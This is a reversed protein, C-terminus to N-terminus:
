MFVTWALLWSQLDIVKYKYDKTQGDNWADDQSLSLGDGDFLVIVSKKDKDNINQPFLSKLNIFEGHQIRQIVRTPAPPLLSSSSQQQVGPIHLPPQQTDLYGNHITLISFISICIFQTILIRM